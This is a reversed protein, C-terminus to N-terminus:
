QKEKRVIIAADEALKTCGATGRGGPFAVASVEHGARRLASIMQVMLENRRPGAGKGHYEWNAPVLVAFRGTSQAWRRALQDAGTSGGEMVVDPDIEQLVKELHAANSYDRGGTVLVFKM